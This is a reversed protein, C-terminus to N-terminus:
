CEESLTYQLLAAQRQLEAYAGASAKAFAGMQRTADGEGKALEGIMDAAKAASEAAARFNLNKAADSVAALGQDMKALDGLVKDEGELNLKITYTSGAM